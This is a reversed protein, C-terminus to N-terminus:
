ECRPAPRFARSCISPHLFAGAITHCCYSLRATLDAAELMSRSAGSATVSRRVALPARIACAEQILYPAPPRPRKELSGLSRVGGLRVTDVV